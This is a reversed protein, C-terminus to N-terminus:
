QEAPDEDVLVVSPDFGSWRAVKLFKLRQDNLQQDLEVVVRDTLAASEARAYSSSTSLWVARRQDIEALRVLELNLEWVIPWATSDNAWEAVAPAVPIVSTLEEEMESRGLRKMWRRRVVLSVAINIALAIAIALGLAALYNLGLSFRLVLMSVLLPVGWSLYRVVRSARTLNSPAAIREWEKRVESEYGLYSPDIVYWSLTEFRRGQFLGPRETNLAM